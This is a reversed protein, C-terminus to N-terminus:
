KPTRSIKLSHTSGPHTRRGRVLHLLRKCEDCGNQNVNAVFTDVIAGNNTTTLSRACAALFEVLSGRELLATTVLVGSAECVFELSGQNLRVMDYSESPSSSHSTREIGCMVDDDYGLLSGSFHEIEVTLTSRPREHRKGWNAAVNRLDASMESKPRIAYFKLHCQLERGLASTLLSRRFVKLIRSMGAGSNVEDIVLLRIREGCENQACAIIWRELTQEPQIGHSLGAFIHARELLTETTNLYSFAFYGGRLFFIISDFPSESEDRVFQARVDQLVGCYDLFAHLSVQQTAFAKPPTHEWLEHLDTTHWSASSARRIM